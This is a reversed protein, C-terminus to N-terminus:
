YEIVVKKGEAELVEQVRLLVSAHYAASLDKWSRKKAHLEEDTRFRQLRLPPCKFLKRVFECMSAVDKAQRQRMEHVIAAVDEPVAQDGAEWRQITRLRVGAKDALWQQSLGLSERMTKLEASTM